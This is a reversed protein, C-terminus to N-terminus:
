RPSLERSDRHPWMRIAAYTVSAAWAATPVIVSAPFIRARWRARRGAAVAVAHRALSADRRLGAGDVPRASYRAREAALALRAVAESAQEPLSLEAAVRAAAARPSESMRYGVRYDALDAQFQGWAARAALVDSRASRWRLRRTLLRAIGPVIVALVALGGVVLGAIAWPTFPGRRAAHGAAGGGAGNDFGTREQPLTPHSSSGPATTASPGTPQTAPATSSVGPAVYNAYSPTTATGQGAPGAPTPEFRIWGVGSFYLEPWAHADNTSVVWTGDPQRVGATYGVVYRSPIGVLRAFTAMAFAFQQCYGRKNRLFSQLSAADTVQQANLTYSFGGTSSFYSQLALAKALPTTAKQTIEGALQGLELAPSQYSEPVSEYATAIAPPISQAGSLEAKSPLLHLSTVHYSLGALKAGPSMVMLSAPEAQWTVSTGSITSSPYPLPLFSLPQGSQVNKSFTIDTATSTYHTKVLNLGPVSPLAKGVPSFRVKQTFWGWGNPTLSDLVYEQLYQSAADTDTTRYTLVVQPHSEDLQSRMQGVPNPLSVSGGGGLSTGGFTWSGAFIRTEHLGPLLVPVFLAIVVSALGVRRGAAALMSTDPRAGAPHGWSSIRERGDTSLLTLYGAAGLCFVVATGVGSRSVTVAFPETFLMLLPLGALASSRLRAAIFDTLLATLGIGASALLLMGDDPPVPPAYANSESLGLGALHALAALSSPSPILFLLSRAAEFRLNLYLLLGVVAGALCVAPPLRRIRTLTGAAAVAIVAGAGSV